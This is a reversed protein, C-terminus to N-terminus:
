EGLQTALGKPAVVRYANTLLHALADSDLECDLRVGLWGRHEVYPPRFFTEPRTSVPATRTRGSGSPLKWLGLM